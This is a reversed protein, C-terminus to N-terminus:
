RSNSRKKTKRRRTNKTKKRKKGGESYQPMSDVIFDNIEKNSPYPRLMHCDSYEGNAIKQKLSDNISIDDYGRNLRKFGTKEDTLFSKAGEWKSVYDYLKHQDASWGEKGHGGNYQITLYWEKLMDENSKDGFIAKWTAPTAISYCIPLENVLNLDRYVVFHSSDIDKISDVYYKRNLPIMDIDTILVGENREIFRPALIRINQAIFGTKINDIPKVLELYQTYEKLNDPISNDVYYIKIDVTPLVKNWAKIFIPIFESYLQNNDTASIITGIKM